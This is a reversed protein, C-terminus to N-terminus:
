IPRYESNPLGFTDDSNDISHKTAHTAHRVNQSSQSNTQSNKYIGDETAKHLLSCVGLSPVPIKNARGNEDLNPAPLLNLMKVLTGYASSYTLIAAIRQTCSAIIIVYLVRM